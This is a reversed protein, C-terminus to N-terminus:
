NQSCFFIILPLFQSHSTQFCLSHQLAMEPSNNGCMMNKSEPSLRTVLKWAHERWPKPDLALMEKQHQAMAFCYLVILLVQVVHYQFVHKEGKDSLFM